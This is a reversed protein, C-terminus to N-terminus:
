GWWIWTQDTRISVEYGANSLIGQVRPSLIRKVYVGDNGNTAAIKITGEIVELLKPERAMDKAEDASIM